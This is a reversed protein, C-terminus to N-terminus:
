VACMAFDHVMAMQDLMDEDMLVDFCATGMPALQGLMVNDSIGNMRDVESFMATRSWACISSILNYGCGHLLCPM